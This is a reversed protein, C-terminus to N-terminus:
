FPDMKLTEARRSIKPTTKIGDTSYIQYNRKDYDANRPTLIGKLERNDILLDIVQNLEEFIEPNSKSKTERELEIADIAKLKWYDRIAQDVLEIVSYAVKGLSTLLYKGHSRRILGSSILNSIRQYYQKKALTVKSMLLDTDVTENKDLSPKEVSSKAIIKFLQISKDDSMAKMVSTATRKNENQFTLKKHTM